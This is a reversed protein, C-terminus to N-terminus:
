RRLLNEQFFRLVHGLELVQNDKKVAGHGEDAFLILQSAVGRSQLLRHMQLAEGVPVRPDSVGQIILLPDRLRDIHTVPSLQVLAERDKVPDGYETIRLPRRFPATNELFTVLNSMGVLSVGAQYSGAFKTMAMLTSYGGYSWGMVGLAPQKGEAAFRRRLDQAVDEIDTIVNLRKPGDDAALFAKGYGESGRVNPEVFVFGASTLIQALRNFGPRSQAEPGGHFHVVVPCPIVSCKQPKSLLMPIDSGDRAKAQVLEVPRVGSPDFEPMSPQTWQTLRRTKWDWIMTVPPLSGRDAGISVFRGFRSVRGIFLSEAGKVKPIEVARLTRADRIEIRGFGGDNWQLYLRQRAFDVIFDELEVKSEPTLASFGSDGRGPRYRYLRTFESFKNTAVFYEGRVGSFAIGYEVAEYQGLVPKLDKTTVDFEFYEAQRAGKARGLLFIDDSLADVVSWLGPQDFVLEASRKSVSYVYLAFSDPQRDNALYFIRDGDATVWAFRTIVGKKHQIEQLAGGKVSQIYLGPHEEGARDRSVVIYKGAPDMAVVRTSDSGGTVQVPFTQPGDLRWIHPIGSISWNFFLKRGEPTLVGGGPSQIDLISRIRGAVAAELSPPAFEKLVAPDVSERGLGQYSPSPPQAKTPPRSPSQCGFLSVMLAAIAILQKM